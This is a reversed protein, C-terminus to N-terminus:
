WVLHSYHDISQSKLVDCLLASSSILDAGASIDPCMMDEEFVDVNDM